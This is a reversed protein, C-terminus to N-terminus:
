VWEFIGVPEPRAESGALFRDSTICMTRVKQLAAPVEVEEWTRLGDRSRLIGRGRTGVYVTGDPASQVDAVDLDPIATEPVSWTKGNDKSRLVYLALESGAILTLESM